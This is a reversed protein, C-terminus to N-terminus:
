IHNWAKRVIIRSVMVQTINYKKAIDKQKTKLEKYEKRISIVDEESLRAMPHNIGIYDNINKRFHLINDKVSCYELNNDQNNLKNSDIHNVTAEPYPKPGKFTLIILKHVTTPHKKGNKSLHLFWYGKYNITQKKINEPMKLLIASKYYRELSKIRGKNSAQYLGEYGPIDKWIEGEIDIISLNESHNM